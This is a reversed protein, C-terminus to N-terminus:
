WSVCVPRKEPPIACVFVCGLRGVTDWFIVGHNVIEMWVCVCVGRATFSEYEHVCM